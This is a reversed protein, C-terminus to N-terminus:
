GGWVVCDVEADCLLAGVAVQGQLTFQALSATDLTIDIVGLRSFHFTAESQLPLRAVLPELM